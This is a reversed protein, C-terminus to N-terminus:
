RGAAVEVENSVAPGSRVEIVKGDEPSHKSTSGDPEPKGEMRVSALLSSGDAERVVEQPFLFWGAWVEGSALRRNSCYKAWEEGRVWEVAVNGPIRRGFYLAMLDPPGLYVFLPAPSLNNVILLGGPISPHALDGGLLTLSVRIGGALQGWAITTIADASSLTGVALGSFTKLRLTFDGAGAEHVSWVTFKGGNEGGEAVTMRNEIAYASAEAAVADDELPVKLHGDRWPWYMTRVFRGRPGLRNEAAFAFPTPIPKGDEYRSRRLVKWRWGVVGPHAPHIEGYRSSDFTELKGHSVTLIVVREASGKEPGAEREIVFGIPPPTMPVGEDWVTWRKRVNEVPALLDAVLADNRLPIRLVEGVPLAEPRVWPNAAALYPWEQFGGLYRKALAALSDGPQITYLLFLDGAPPGAPPPGGGEGSLGLLVAAILVLPILAMPPTM